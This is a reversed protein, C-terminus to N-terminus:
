AREIRHCGLSLIAGLILGVLVSIGAVPAETAMMIVSGAATGFLTSILVVGLARFRNMASRKFWTEIVFAYLVSPIIAFVYAYALYAFFVSVTIDSPSVIENQKWLLLLMTGILAPGLIEVTIRIPKKM